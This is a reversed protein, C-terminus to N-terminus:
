RGPHYAPLQNDSDILWNILRWQMEQAVDPYRDIVNETEGPDNELDFLMLPKLGEAEWIEAPTANGWDKTGLSRHYIYKWKPTRIGKTATEKYLNFELPIQERVEAKGEWLPRLSVCQDKAADPVKLGTLDLVTGFVDNMNCLGATQVGAPIMGPWRMLLVSRLVPDFLTHQKGWMNHEGLSGAHDSMVILLTDDAMGLKDITETLIGVYYDVFAVMNDHHALARQKHSEPLDPSYAPVRTLDPGDWPEPTYKTDFPPPPRWAGHPDEVDAWFFFPKRNRETDAKYGKLWHILAAVDQATETKAEADSGPPIEEAIDWPKKGETFYRPVLNRDMFGRDLGPPFARQRTHATIYGADNLIEALTTEALPLPISNIRMGCTHPDRGTLISARSTHSSPMPAFFNRFFVGEEALRSFAPTPRVEPGWPALHDPRFTDIMFVIINPHKM